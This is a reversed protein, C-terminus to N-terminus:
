DASVYVELVTNTSLDFTGDPSSTGVVYGAPYDTGTKYVVKYKVGLSDLQATYTSELVKEYPPLTVISNGLSVTLKVRTGTTIEIGPTVDQSIIYGEPQDPSNIYEPEEFIYIERNKANAIVDAYKQGIFNDMVYVENKSEESSEASSQKSEEASDERSVTASSQQNQENTSSGDQPYSSVLWEDSAAIDSSEEKKDSTSRGGFLMWFTLILALLLIPLAILMSNMVLKRTRRREAQKGEEPDVTEEEIEAQEVTSKTEPQPKHVAPHYYATAEERGQYSPRHVTPHAPKTTEEAAPEQEQATPIGTLSAALADMDQMRKQSDVSLGKLIAESVYPPVTENRERPSMLQKEPSRVLAEPPRQGTLVTYFVACMAYVDTWPGHPSVASYQEPASYGPFLEAALETRAARVASISFGGIKVTDYPTVYLTDVSLGRHLIGDQHLLRLTKVAPMLLDSAEQWSLMTGKRVLYERLTVADVHELVAYITNNEEALALVQVVCALTRMRTLKRMMDMYDGMNAKFPIQRGEMVQVTIGDPARSSLTDPFYERIDVRKQSMTDFGIYLVSEGNASLVRGVLYRQAILTRLPLYAAGHPMDERFGCHPCVPADGKEKMCGMCLTEYM